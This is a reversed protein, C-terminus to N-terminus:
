NTNGVFFSIRYMGSQRSENWYNLALTEGAM